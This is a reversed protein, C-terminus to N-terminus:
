AHEHRTNYISVAEMAHLFFFIPRIVIPALLLRARFYAAGDEFHYKHGEVTLFFLFFFPPPGSARCSKSSGTILVLGALERVSRGIFAPPVCWCVRTTARLVWCPIEFGIDKNRIRNCTRYGQSRPACQRAGRLQTDVSNYIPHVGPHPM